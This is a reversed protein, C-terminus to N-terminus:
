EGKKDKQMGKRIEIIEDRIQAAQEFDLNASAVDMEMELQKILQQAKAKSLKEEAKRKKKTGKFEIDRVEKNITTPTIGHATNYAEQKARRRATEDMAARMSNTIKDAYLIVTGGSNRAARGITQILSTTSRLFGEKDADLIAVLSVEPLDLGERLLNIGVLVDIEGLRLSRLLEIREFTDIDSHLYRVKVGNEALFESLAEASKKTLTTVLTREGKATRTAIEGLLHDIQGESGHMQITPDLLGTPRIVQEADVTGSHQLEYPGPTASVYIKQPTKAAFEEFRLPRNDLASPLRFGYDVLNMKRNRDGNYMAGIQPVTIHSEDIVTLFDEPFYDILTYGPEGPATGALYRTYNEIGKVMGTEALMEMDYNVRQRLREAFMIEGKELLQAYREDLEKKIQPIIKRITDPPVAHHKAPFIMVEHVDKELLEGTLPETANIQEIEDGWMQVQWVTDGGQPYIELVDGIVEYTGPNFDSAARNFQMETLQRLIEERKVQQGKALRLSMAEYSDRHGIGYICSVSAVIIVDRRTLLSQTAAHRYKDIEENILADKEIYTDSSAIYAEPQYYDYYSVFYHVANDPFFERLESALQAALTKNHAIVLTPRQVNGIVNAITFTKGTGTAGLLAIHPKGAQTAATLKAIAEPQDGMPQYPSHLRFQKSDM